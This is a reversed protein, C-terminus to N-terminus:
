DEKKVFNTIDDHSVADMILDYVPLVEEYGFDIADLVSQKVNLTVKIDNSDKFDKEFSDFNERQIFLMPIECSVSTYEGTSEDYTFFYMEKFEIDYRRSATKLNIGGVKKAALADSSGNVYVTDPNLKTTQDIKKISTVGGLEALPFWYTNYIIGSVDERVETGVLKGTANDYIECNRSDSTPIFDGKTGIVTTYDEGIHVMASTSVLDKGMVTLHEYLYGITSGESDSSFTIQVAATEFVDMAVTFDGGNVAYKIAINETLQIRASYDDSNSDAKM